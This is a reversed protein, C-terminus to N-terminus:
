GYCAGCGGSGAFDLAHHEAGEITAIYLLAVRMGFHPRQLETFNL